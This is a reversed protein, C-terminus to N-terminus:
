IWPGTSIQYTDQYNSPFIMISSWCLFSHLFNFIDPLLPVKLVSLIPPMFDHVKLGTSTIFLQIACQTLEAQRNSFDCCAAAEYFFLHTDRKSIEQLQDCLSNIVWSHETCVPFLSWTLWCSSSSHFTVYETYFKAVLLVRSRHGLSHTGM